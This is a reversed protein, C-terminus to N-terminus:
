TNDNTKQKLHELDAQLQQIMIAQSDIKAQQEDLQVKQKDIMADKKEVLTIYESVDLTLSQDLMAQIAEWIETHKRYLHRILKRTLALLELRDGLLITGSSYAKEIVEIIDNQYLNLM